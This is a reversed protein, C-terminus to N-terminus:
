IVTRTVTCCKKVTMKQLEDLQRELKQMKRERERIARQLETVPDQRKRIIM